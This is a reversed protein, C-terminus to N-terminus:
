IPLPIYTVVRVVFVLLFVIVRWIIQLPLGYM